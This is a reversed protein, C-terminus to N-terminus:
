VQPLDTITGWAALNTSVEDASRMGLLVSSVAPHTFPFQIADAILTSGRFAAERALDQARQVLLSDATEYDFTATAHPSALLGSNFVGGCVVQIDRNLCADLLPKGTQDLLTWRGALLVVDLDVRHVFRGLMDFQNMGCGVAGIVGQERLEILAPFAGDLAENEHNDPDHVYVVDLRDVGLRLCSAEICRHVGDRSFDWRYRNSHPLDVFSDNQEPGTEDILRGVKSSVVVTSRDFGNLARGLRQEALGLGYQPATDFLRVGLEYARQLAASAAEDSVASFLNGLPATGFGIRPLTIAATVAL